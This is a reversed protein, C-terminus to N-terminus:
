PREIKSGHRRWLVRILRGIIRKLYKIEREEFVGLLYLAFPYSLCYLVKIPIAVAFRLADLRNALSVYLITAGAVVLLKKLEFRLPHLRQTTAYCAITLFSYSVATAVAAGMMGYKPILLLNLGVNGGATIWAYYALYKTKKELSIGLATVQTSAYAMAGLALPGVAAAAPYFQPTTLLFLAERAFVTFGIGMFGFIVLIYLLMKGLIERYHPESTYIQYARPSWAQGLALRAFELVVIMRVAIGYLGTQDLTSLRTILLRDSLNFIWYALGAPVLPVAFRLIGKLQNLSFVPRINQFVLILCILFTLVSGILYGLFFGLLGLSYKLVLLLSFGVTLSGNLFSIVSFRVPQFKIRLINQLYALLATVAASMLAVLYLTGYRDDGLTFTSLQKTTLILLGSVVLVWVLLFWFGSSILSIRAERNEEEFFLRQVGSLVGVGLIITIVGTASNIVGMVGYEAPVFIRTFIPLALLGVLKVALRGGGYVLVDKLILRFSKLV